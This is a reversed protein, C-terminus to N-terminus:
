LGAQSLFDAVKGLGMKLSVQDWAFHPTELGHNLISRLIKMLDTETIIGVVEQNQMVVVAGIKEDVMRDIVDILSADLTVTTVPTSMYDGVSISPDLGFAAPSHDEPDEMAVTVARQVDRDSLIGILRKNDIVPLHRCGTDSMLQAADVLADKSSVSFVERTM